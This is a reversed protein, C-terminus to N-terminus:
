CYPPPIEPSLAEEKVSTIRPNALWDMDYKLDSRNHSINKLFKQLKSCIWPTSRLDIWHEKSETSIGLPFTSLLWKKMYIGNLDIIKEDSRNYIQFDIFYQNLIRFIVSDYDATKEWTNCCKKQLNEKHFSKNKKAKIMQIDNYTEM